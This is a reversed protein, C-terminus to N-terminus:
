TDILRTQVCIHNCVHNASPQLQGTDKASVFCAAAADKSSPMFIRNCRPQLFSIACCTFLTLFYQCYNEVGNHVRTEIIVPGKALPRDFLYPQRRTHIVPLIMDVAANRSLMNDGFTSISISVYPNM